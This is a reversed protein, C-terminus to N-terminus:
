SKQKLIDSVSFLSAIEPVTKKYTSVDYGFHTKVYNYTQEAKAKVEPNAFITFVQDFTENRHVYILLEWCTDAIQNQKISNFSEDPQKELKTLEDLLEGPNKSLFRNQSIQYVQGLPFISFRTDGLQIRADTYRKSLRIADSKSCPIGAQAVQCADELLARGVSNKHDERDIGIQELYHEVWIDQLMDCLDSVIMENQANIKPDPSHQWGFNPLGLDTIVAHAAEHMLTDQWHLAHCDIWIQHHIPRDHSPAIFHVGPFNKYTEFPLKGKDYYRVEMKLGSLSLKLNDPLASALCGLEMNSTVLLKFEEIKPM